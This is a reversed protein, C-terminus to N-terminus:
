GSPLHWMHCRALDRAGALGPTYFGPPLQSDRHTERLDPNLPLLSSLDLIHTLCLHPSICFSPPPLLPLQLQPQLLPFCTTSTKGVGRADRLTLACPNM